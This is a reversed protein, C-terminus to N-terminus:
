KVKKLKSTLIDAVAENAAAQTEAFEYAYINLTTSVQSHGLNAAVTQIDTGSNILLAANLHRFAHVGLFRIRHRECHRQLWTYPTNPHMHAGDQSTFIRESGRWQDGISLRTESQDAKWPRLADFIIKPQKLIRRSGETKPVDTYIGREKTYLSVRNVSIVRNDLDIDAWEFGCIEERRYGGFIALTFFARYKSPAENFSELLVQAEEVTYWRHSKAASPPAPVKECPNSDIIDMIVAYNFASSLFSLYNKQTKPSLPKKTKLNAGNQGLRNIFIKIQRPTVQDLYLHGLQDVVRTKLQEYGTKTKHRIDVEGYEKLFQDVFVGFKIHGDQASASRCEEEFMVIQRQLEKEIQRPTMKLDPTWTKSPQVQKGSIKYGTSARIRYSDGRKEIHAM